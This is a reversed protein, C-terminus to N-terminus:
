FDVSVALGVGQQTVDDAKRWNYNASLSVEQTLKQSVGISARNLSSQPKYGDLTFDITPLSNLAITVNQQHNAYEHEHAAEAFLQTSSTVQIKGQLGAGLRRSNRRQDDFTLATSRAGDESYGNVVIHAYDASIFPSLHWGSNAQAIDYGLRASFAWLKGDTDGKEEGEAVGLAFKRNADQYDLKGGTLAADAWLHNAHYQLFATALYSNLSYDSDRPGAELRQRYFGAAVGARWDDAFRYSGGITLNYGHGDAKASSRDDDFKIREGGTAIIARWRGVSQWNGEDALWQNRLADQHANLTGLAMEPLLTTEWPASLLSYAYDAILQQGAITPHVSDNFLLKTPDPTASNLGHALNEKCANGNFCTGVLNQSADLGFRAPNALTEQILLPINLPIIEAHIQSLRSVLEANFAGSLQSSPTQAPTGFAAPTLGLDPLLWVMIYRAGAQQLAQASNALQDASGAASPADVVLGQFFDNGGGSLFYLANPDARFNNAVLYSDKSRLVTGGGPEGDPIAVVSKSTVSGYIQDTRYGGVAYNNGDKLGLLANVPSTSPLLDGPAIGLKLGLLTTSVPGYAEGSGDKFTPGTRNTFRLGSVNPGALDPYQGSDSLSDGFVLLTSYPSPAAFAYSCALSLVCTAFPLSLAQKIM